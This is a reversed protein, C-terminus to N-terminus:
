KPRCWVVLQSKGLKHDDKEALVEAHRSYPCVESMAIQRNLRRKKVDTNFIRILYQQDEGEIREISYKKGAFRQTLEDVTKTLQKNPMCGTLAFVLLSLLFLKKMNFVVNILYNQRRKSEASCNM